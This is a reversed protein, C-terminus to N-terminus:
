IDEPGEVGTGGWTTAWLLVNQASYKAIYLDGAPDNTKLLRVGLPNPDVDISGTFQGVVVINGQPDAKAISFGSKPPAGDAVQFASVLASPAIRSELVEIM